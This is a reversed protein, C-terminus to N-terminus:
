PDSGLALYYADIAAKAGARTYLDPHRSVIVDAVVEAVEAPEQGGPIARSDPGGHAAHLGFNTYVVGPSM